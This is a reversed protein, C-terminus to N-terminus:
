FATCISQEHTCSVPDSSLTHRMGADFSVLHHLVPCPEPLIQELSPAVKAEDDQQLNEEPGMGQLQLQLTAPTTYILFALLQAKVMPTLMESLQGSGTDCLM